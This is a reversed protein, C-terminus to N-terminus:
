WSARARGYNESNKCLQVSCIILERVLLSVVEFDLSRPYVQGVNNWNATAGLHQMVKKDLQVAKECDGLLTVQDLRTGVAGKLGRYPYTACLSALADLVRELEEGWNAM